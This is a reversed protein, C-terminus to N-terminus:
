KPDSDNTRSVSRATDSTVSGSTSGGNGGGGSASSSSGIAMSASSIIKANM